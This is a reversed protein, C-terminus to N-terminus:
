GYNTSHLFENENGRPQSSVIKAIWPNSRTQLWSSHEQDVLNQAAGNLYKQRHPEIPRTAFGPFHRTTRSPHAVYHGMSDTPQSFDM